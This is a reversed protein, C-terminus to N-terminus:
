RFGGPTLFTFLLHYTNANSSQKVAIGFLKAITKGSQPNCLYSDESLVVFTGRKWWKEVLVVM